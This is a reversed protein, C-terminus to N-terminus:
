PPLGLVGLVYSMQVRSTWGDSTIGIYPQTAIARKIVGHAEKYLWEVRRTAATRHLMQYQPAVAHVFSRFHPDDVIAFSKASFGVFKALALDAQVSGFWTHTPRVVRLTHAHSANAAYRLSSPRTPKGRRQTRRGLGLGSDSPAYIQQRQAPSWARTSGGPM